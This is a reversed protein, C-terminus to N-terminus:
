ELAKLIQETHSKTDVKDFIKLINGDQGIVFTTRHVGDYVKGMFKKPGWVGYQQLIKKETDPILTFGLQYKGAFKLHSAPSDPSVGLVVYGKDLLLQQNDRFNCAEATCGPTDDKPYFYLIVRRGRFASLSLPNGQQDAAEFLPAAMGEKLKEM